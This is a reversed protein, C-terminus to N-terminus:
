AMESAATHTQAFSAFLLLFLFHFEDVLYIPSVSTVLTPCNGMFAPHYFAVEREPFKGSTIFVICRYRVTFHLLFHMVYHGTLPLKLLYNLFLKLKVEKVWGLTFQNYSELSQNAKLEENTLPILSFLFYNVLYAIDWQMPLFKSIDGSLEEKKIQYSLTM